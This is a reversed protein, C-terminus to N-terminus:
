KIFSLIGDVTRDGKYHEYDKSGKVYVISPFGKVDYKSLMEPGADNREIKKLVVDGKYKETLKKWTPNFKVCWPCRNMYFYILKKSGGGFSEKTQMLQYILMALLVFAIIIVSIDECGM